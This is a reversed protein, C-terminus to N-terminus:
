DDIPYGDSGIRRRPRKGQQILTIRQHCDAAVARLNSPDDTGGQAKPIRHDVQTAATVRLAGGMCRDCQCLYDDRKLIQLRLAMWRRGYGRAHRSTTPWNSKPM